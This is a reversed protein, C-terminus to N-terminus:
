DTKEDLFEAAEVVGAAGDPRHVRDGEVHLVAFEDGEQAGGTAALGGKQPHQGTELVGGRSVDEEPVLPHVVHGRVLPVDGHDKLGVGNKGVEVHLLVDGEAEPEFFEGPLLDVIRIAM